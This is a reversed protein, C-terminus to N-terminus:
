AMSLAEKRSQGLKNLRKLFAGFFLPVIEGFCEAALHRIGPLFQRQSFRKEGTDNAWIEDRSVFFPFLIGPAPQGIEMQM